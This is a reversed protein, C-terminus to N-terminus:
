TVGFIEETSAVTVARRLWRALTDIDKCEQIRRRQEDTIPLGRADLVELVTVARAAAQGEERGEERGEARGQSRGKAIADRISETQFEYGRPLM